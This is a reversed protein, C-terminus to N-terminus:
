GPPRAGAGTYVQLSNVTMGAVHLKLFCFRLCTITPRRGAPHVSVGCCAGKLRCCDVLSLVPALVWLPCPQQPGCSATPILRALLCCTPLGTASTAAAAVSLVTCAKPVICSCTPCGAVTLRMM